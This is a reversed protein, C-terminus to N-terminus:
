KNNIQDDNNKMIKRVMISTISIMIIGLLIPILYRDRMNEQINTELEKIQVNLTEEDFTYLANIPEIKVIKPYNSRVKIESVSIEGSKLEQINIQNDGDVLEIEPPLSINFNMNTVTLESVNKAIVKVIFESNETPNEPITEFMIHPAEHIKLKTKESQAFLEQTSLIYRLTSESALEEIPYLLQVSYSLNVSDGPILEKVERKTVDDTIKLFSDIGPNIRLRYIPMKGNNIIELNMKSTSGPFGEEKSFTKKITIGYPILYSESYNEIPIKSNEVHIKSPPLLYTENIDDIRTAYKITILEDPDIQDITKILTNGKLNQPHFDGELFIIGEPLYDTIQVNNAETTSTNRITLTVNLYKTNISEGLDITKTISLDPANIKGINYLIPLSNSDSRKEVNDSENWSVTWTLERLSDTIGLNSLDDVFIMKGGPIIEDYEAIETSERYLRVNSATSSGTNIIELSASGELNSQLIKETGLSARVKLIAGQKNILIPADNLTSIRTVTSNGIKYDYKIVNNAKGQIIEQKSENLAKLVYTISTAERASLSRVEEVANGSILEFDDKWWEENIKIFEAIAITEPTVNAINIKVEITEDNNIITKDIQRTAIIAPSLEGVRVELNPIPQGPDIKKELIATSNDLNTITCVKCQYAVTNIMKLRLSATNSISSVTQNKLQPVLDILELEKTPYEDRIIISAFEVTYRFKDNDNIGTLIIISPSTRLFEEPKVLNLLGRDNVDEIQPVLNIIEKAAIEPNVHSYFDSNIIKHDRTFGTKLFSNLFYSLENAADNNTTKVNLISSVPPLNYFPLLELGKLTLVDYDVKWESTNGIILSFSEIDKIAGESIKFEQEPIDNGKFKVKWLALDGVTTIEILEDPEIESTEQSYGTSV